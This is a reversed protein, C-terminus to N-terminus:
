IFMGEPESEILDAIEVFSRREYDNIKLLTRKISRTYGAYDIFGYYEQVKQPLYCHDGFYSYVTRCLNDFPSEWKGLRSVDCAVGLCCYYNGRRLNEYGQKYKGSRLAKVLEARHKKQEEETYTM